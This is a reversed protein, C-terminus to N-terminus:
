YPSAPRRSLEDLAKYFAPLEQQVMSEAKPPLGAIKTIQQALDPYLSLQDLLTEIPPPPVAHPGSVALRAKHAELNKYILAQLCNKLETYTIDPDPKNMWLKDWYDLYRQQRRHAVPVSQYASAVTPM